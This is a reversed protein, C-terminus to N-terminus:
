DCTALACIKRYRPVSGHVKRGVLEKVKAGYGASSNKVSTCYSLSHLLLTSM